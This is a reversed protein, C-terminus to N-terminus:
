RTLGGATVGVFNLTTPDALRLAANRADTPTAETLAADAIHRCQALTHQALVFRVTPVSGPAMSLSTAGLGTLVLAMLPDAASEGCIGAPKGVTTAARLVGAVSHLVAPQWPDLLDALGGLLRDAAMTYQALDNTGISVFDVERLIDAARVAAAPVEIMVGARRIGRGHAMSAFAAAEQPTAIMPAMVWSETGSSKWTHALADLQTHILDPATRGVRFGRVGLAPNEEYERPVFALPKDAGADLTRVVVKRDPLARLVRTYSLAQEERSPAKERGLFLVETRFLGVGEVGNPDLREADDPTGINALLEVPHHDRTRGPSRNEALERLGCIRVDIRTRTAEDPEVVVTGAAADVAVVTGDHVERLEGAGARVVCPIGLQGAIVATHGTPGGQELVIALIKSLDLSSTDAPALDTAVLVSPRELQPLGPGPLGLLCCVVRDRVSRLDTAREGLHGGAATFLNVFEETAADVASLATQGAAMRGTVAATLEPDVAMASTARLIDALATGAAAQARKALDEGVQRYAASVDEATLSADPVGDARLQASSPAPHSRVAPGVAAGRGVGLGRLIRTRSTDTM